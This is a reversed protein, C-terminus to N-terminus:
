GFLGGPRRGRLYAQKMEGKDLVVIMARWNEVFHDADGRGLSAVMEPYLEGKIRDYERRAEDKYWDTADTVSVANFEADSLLSEYEQMTRMEYTLGELEIWYLMDESDDHGTGLWEYCSMWGGPRLVRYVEAFLAAKDPTQTVAGSSVVADFTEDEFPLPGPEVVQFRCRGELGRAEAARQARQVLPEELDIGVVEAGHRNAMELAPGGIGCGIDLIRKGRTEIGVLIKAVNGPGGPAMYGRGWILELMRVMTDHYETEHTM